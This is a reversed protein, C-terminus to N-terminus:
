NIDNVSRRRLPKQDGAPWLSRAFLFIIAAVLALIANLIFLPRHGLGSILYGGGFVLASSGVGRAATATGAMISRWEPAVLEQSHVAFTSSFVAFVALVGALSLGAVAWHPVLAMFLQSLCLVGISAVLTMSRGIKKAIIPMLLASPVSLLKAVAITIGILSTSAQLRADMYINFFLQTSRLSAMVLLNILSLGLIIRIPAKDARAAKKRTPAEEVDRTLHLLIFGLAFVVPVLLLSLGYARSADLTLGLSVALTGPLLGGVLSGGFGFLPAIAMQMSFARNRQEPITSATLFPQIAVMVIAAVSSNGRNPPCSKPM